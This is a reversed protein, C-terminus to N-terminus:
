LPADKGGSPWLTMALLLVLGTTHPMLIMSTVRALNVDNAAINIVGSPRGTSWAQLPKPNRIRRLSPPFVLSSCKLGTLIPM